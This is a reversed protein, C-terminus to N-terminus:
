RKREGYFIVWTAFDKSFNIFRHEMGAPVFLVDGESCNIIEGNRFFESQGSIIMDLEDQTHPQQTDIEEPAFYEVSMNGDRMMVTFRKDKERQLQDAAEAVSIAFKEM